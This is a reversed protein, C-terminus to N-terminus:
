KKSKQQSVGQKKTQGLKNNYIPPNNVSKSHQTM